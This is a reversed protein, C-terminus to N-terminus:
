RRVEFYICHHMKSQYEIDETKDILVFGCKELVRRSAINDEFIGASVAAYGQEFLKEVVAKLAETAYGKNQHDPHIAYGIEVNGNEIGTDNIIGILKDDIYIGCAFRDPMYSLEKIRNFLKEATEDLKLDPTLYTASVKENRLIEVLATKDMDSLPKIILRKTRIM